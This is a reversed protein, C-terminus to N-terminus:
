ASCGLLCDIRGWLYGSKRFRARQWPLIWRANQVASQLRAQEACSGVAVVGKLRNRTLYLKRYDGNNNHYTITQDIQSEYEDSIWGMTFIPLDLIRLLTAAMSGTYTGVGECLRDALVGCQELGPALLGYIQGRHEACEGIAFVGERSTQLTDDVVIGRGVKLGASRALAVNPQIGTAFIVTDCEITRGNRLEVGAVGTTGLIKRMGSNLFVEVGYGELTRKLIAGAESDLQRNMLRDSQHVLTVQTNNRQMARAAEVGLIGGGVIVTRRTRASRAMLQQADNLDRFVFVGPLGLGRVNPVWPRSGTAFVLQHYHHRVGKDDILAHHAPDISTVRRHLFLFRDKNSEIEPFLIDSYRVEGAVLSSLQMRNYPQWPEDGFLKIMGKFGRQLLTQACQVGVPGSGIIALVRHQEFRGPQIPDIAQTDITVASDHEWHNKLLPDAM